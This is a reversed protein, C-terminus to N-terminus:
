SKTRLIFKGWYDWLEVRCIISEQAGPQVFRSFAGPFSGCSHSTASASIPRFSGSAQVRVYHIIFSAIALKAGSRLRGFKEV